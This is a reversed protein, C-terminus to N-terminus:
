ARTHARGGELEAVAGNVVPIAAALCNLLGVAGDVVWQATFESEDQPWAVEKRLLIVQRDGERSMLWGNDIWSHEDTRLRDYLVRAMQAVPERPGSRPEVDLRCVSASSTLDMYYEMHLWPCGPTVSPEWTDRWIQLWRDTVSTQFERSSFWGENAVANLIDKYVRVVETKVVGMSREVLPYIRLFRKVSMDFDRPM